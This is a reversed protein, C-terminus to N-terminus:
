NTYGLAKLRDKTADDVPVFRKAPAALVPVANQMVGSMAQFAADVARSREPAALLDVMEDPDARVDYLSYPNEKVKGDGRAGTEWLLKYSANRVARHSPQKAVGESVLWRPPPAAGNPTPVFSVGAAAPACPVGLYACMSPMVDVLGVLCGVQGGPASIGPLRAAFPVAVEDDYLGLGHNGWGHAFLAEGHDSTVIIATREFAPHRAFAELFQGLARDFKELGADYAMEILGLVPPAGAPVAPQGDEYRPVMNVAVKAQESLPRKDGRLETMRRAVDDRRLLGYPLHSDLYHVYAFFREEPQRAALWALAARSVVEGPTGWRAFSDDYLEFGQDFGFRKEMWPNSVFAATRFGARQMVEAFTDLEPALVDAEQLAGTRQVDFPSRIQPDDAVRHQSPYLSTFLTAVSPKTWPSQTFAHQFLLNARAFGDFATTRAPGGYAGMRDRRNTDNVIVILNADPPVGGRVLERCAPVPAVEVERGCAVVGAWALTVCVLWRVSPWVCDFM